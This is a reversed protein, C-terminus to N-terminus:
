RAREPRRHGGHLEPGSRALAQGAARQRLCSRAAGNLTGESRGGQRHETRGPFQPRRGFPVGLNQRTWQHLTCSGPEGIVM